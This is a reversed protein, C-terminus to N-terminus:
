LDDFACMGILIQREICSRWEGTPENASGSEKMAQEQSASRRAESARRIASPTPSTYETTAKGQALAKTREEERKDFAKLAAAVSDPSSYRTGPSLPMQEPSGLHSSLRSLPTGDRFNAIGGSSQRSLSSASSSSRQPHSRSTQRGAWYSSRSAYPEEVSPSPKEIGMLRLHAEMRHRERRDEEDEEEPFSKRPPRATTPESAPPTATSTKNALALPRLAPNPKPEAPSGLTPLGFGLSRLDLSFGRKARKDMKAEQKTNEEMKEPEATTVDSTARGFFSLPRSKKEVSKRSIEAPLSEKKVETQAQMNDALEQLSGRIPGSSKKAGFRRTKYDVSLIQEFGEQTIIRDIIKSCYLTLAKNAERLNKIETRMAEGEDGKGWVRMQGADVEVEARGLEAALDLGVGTEPLDGLSEVKRIKGKKPPALHGSSSISMSGSEGDLSKVFVHEDELIPSQANLDSNLEDMELEEDLAELHGGARGSPTLSDDYRSVVDCGIDPMKGSLTRERVLYEWGANEELLEVNAQRLEGVERNVTDLQALLTSNSVKLSALEDKLDSIHGDDLSESVPSVPKSSKAALLARIRQQLHTEQDKLARREAEFAAEQEAIRKQAERTQSEAQSLRERLRILVEDREMLDSELRTEELYADKAQSQLTRLSTALEKKAREAAAVDAELNEVKQLLRDRVDWEEKLAEQIAERSAGNLEEETRERLGGMTGAGRASTMPNRNLEQVLEPGSASATGPLLSRRKARSPPLPRHSSPHDNPLIEFSM